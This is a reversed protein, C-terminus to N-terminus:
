VQWVTGLPFLELRLVALGRGEALDTQSTDPFLSQVRARDDRLFPKPLLWQCRSFIPTQIVGASEALGTGRLCLSAAKLYMPHLAVARLPCM